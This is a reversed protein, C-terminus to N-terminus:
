TGEEWGTIYSRQEDTLSDISVGMAELKLRAIDYDLEDPATYVANDM